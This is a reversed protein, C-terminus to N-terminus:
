AQGKRPARKDPRGKGNETKRRERKGFYEVQYQRVHRNHEALTAAFEHSGDNRSVFYLYPVEAPRVVAELSARGPAAIPGPPLGPHRYTNYPSDFMLNERTLNGDYLGERELAYIVTPDCQLAMGIRRRNEYVAAVLPREGPKATEKEVLSALIVVDRVPLGRAQAEDRLVQPFARAFQGTMLKVLQDATTHRAVAYTAPFLYGELDTADPDLAAIPAPDQAATVFSDASGFGHEAFIRAMDAVTLGEPFTIPVLYVDGRAIKRVVDVVTMPQDFRYEGAQMRRGNDTAWVAVRFSWRNRVIGADVLRDAMAAVRAGPPIEVFQEVADYGKFPQQYSRSLIVAAFGAATLILLLIVFLAAAWRRLTPSRDM